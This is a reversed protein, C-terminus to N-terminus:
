VYYSLFNLRAPKCESVFEQRKHSIVVATDKQFSCFQFDDFLARTESENM